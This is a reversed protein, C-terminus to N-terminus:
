DCDILTQGYTQLGVRIDMEVDTQVDRLRNPRIDQVVGIQIVDFIRFYGNKNVVNMFAFNLFDSM